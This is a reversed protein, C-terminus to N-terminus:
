WNIAIKLLATGSMNHLTQLLDIEKSEKYAIEFNEWHNNWGDSDSKNWKIIYLKVDKYSKYENWIADHVSKVLKMQYKPSILDDM